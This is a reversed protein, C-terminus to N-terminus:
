ARRASAETTPRTQPRNSSSSNMSRDTASAAFANTDKKARRIAKADTSGTCPRSSISLTIAVLNPTLPAANSTTRWANADGSTVRV